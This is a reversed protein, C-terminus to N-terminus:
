FSVTNSFCKALWNGSISGILTSSCGGFDASCIVGLPEELAFSLRSVSGEGSSSRFSEVMLNGPPSSSSRERDLDVATPGSSDKKLNMFGEQVVRSRVSMRLGVMGVGKLASM